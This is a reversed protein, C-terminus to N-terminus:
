EAEEILWMKIIELNDPVDDLEPFFRCRKVGTEDALECFACEIDGGYSGFIYPTFGLKEEADAYKCKISECNECYRKSFWDNWPSGDFMGHKDLWEAFEDINMSQIHKFNTM